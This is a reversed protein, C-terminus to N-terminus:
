RSNRRYGLSDYTTEMESKEDVEDDPVTSTSFIITDKKHIVLNWILQLFVWPHRKWNKFDVCRCKVGLEELKHIMLQNKMTEGCDAPKGKNIWGIIIAENTM